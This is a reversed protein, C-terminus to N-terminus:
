DKHLFIETGCYPCVVLGKGALELKAGCNPCRQDAKLESAEKSYLIGDKWNVAGSFLDKGVLDRVLDEAQERPINLEIAIDSLRVKGQTLVMNLITREMQARSMRAEEQKGHWLLYAGVAALPLVIFIFVLIFGLTQGGITAASESFLQVGFLAGSGLCILIAIAILIIGAIRGTSKMTM